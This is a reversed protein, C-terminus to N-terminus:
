VNEKKGDRRVGGWGEEKRKEEVEEGEKAGRERGEVRVCIHTGKEAQGEGKGGL